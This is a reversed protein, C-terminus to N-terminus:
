HSEDLLSDVNTSGARYRRVLENSIADIQAFLTKRQSSVRSEFESLRRCCNDLEGDDLQRLSGFGSEVCLAELEVVLPHDAVVATDRPPRNSGSGREEAFVRAIGDTVDVNSADGSSRRRQEDRAIDLRGQALRRAFSVADEQEQLANREARVQELSLASFDSGGSVPPLVAVEDADSVRADPSCEEGNLWVTCSALVAEFSPGFQRKATSLVEEVTAGAVTDRSVGAAERASAFLLLRAM